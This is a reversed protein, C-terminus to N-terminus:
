QCESWEVGVPMLEVASRVQAKGVRRVLDDKEAGEDELEQRLRQEAANTAELERALGRQQAAAQELEAEKRTLDTEM